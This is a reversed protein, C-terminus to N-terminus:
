SLIRELEVRASGPLDRASVAVGEEDELVRLRERDEADLYLYPLVREREPTHHLGGLNVREGRLKGGRALELISAVDRTLLISRRPSSRWRDLRRRAADVTAFQADAGDPLGLVYLEKEWESEALRDDVVLYRDADLRTGWGVVVQGHILREDVRYLVIPM